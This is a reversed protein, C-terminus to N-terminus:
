AGVQNSAKRARQPAEKRETRQLESELRWVSGGLRRMDSDHAKGERRINDRGGEGKLGPSVRAVWSRLTQAVTLDRVPCRGM